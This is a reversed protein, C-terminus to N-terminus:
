KDRKLLTSGALAIGVFIIGVLADTRITSRAIGLGFHAVVVLITAMMVATGLVFIPVIFRIM